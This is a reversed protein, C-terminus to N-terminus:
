FWGNREQTQERRRLSIQSWEWTLHDNQLAGAFLIDMLIMGGGWKGGRWFHLGEEGEEREEEEEEEKLIQEQLGQGM